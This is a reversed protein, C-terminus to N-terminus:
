AGDQVVLIRNAVNRKQMARVTLEADRPNDEVVLIDAADSTGM